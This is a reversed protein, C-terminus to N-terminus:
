GVTGSLTCPRGEVRGKWPQESTHGKLPLPPMAIRPQRSGVDRRRRPPRQHPPGRDRPRKRLSPLHQTRLTTQTPHPGLTEDLLQRRSPDITRQRPQTRRMPRALRGDTSMGTTPMPEIAHDAPADAYGTHAAPAYSPVPEASGDQSTRTSSPRPTSVRTTPAASSAAM